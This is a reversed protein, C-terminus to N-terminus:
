TTTLSTQLFQKQCIVSLVIIHWRVAAIPLYVKVGPLNELISFTVLCGFNKMFTTTLNM